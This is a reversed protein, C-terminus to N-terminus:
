SIKLPYILVLRHLFKPCSHFFCEPQAFVVPVHKIQALLHHRDTGPPRWVMEGVVDFVHHCAMPHAHKPGGGGAVGTSGESLRWRLAPSLLKLMWM